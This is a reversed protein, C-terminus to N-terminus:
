DIDPITYGRCNPHTDFSDSFDYHEGDHPLCEDCADDQEVRIWGKCVGSQEMQQINTERLVNNQETRAITLARSLNGDMDQALLKATVRPNSGNAVASILTNEIRDISQPYSEAILKALPSGDSTLGIMNNIAEYNLHKFKTTVLEITTQTLDLGLKAYYSQGDTIVSTALNNFKAVQYKSEALFQKYLDSRFLQDPSLVEKEALKTILGSFNDSVSGWKNSLFLMERNEYAFARKQFGTLVQKAEILYAM